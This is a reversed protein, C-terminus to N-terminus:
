LTEWGGFDLNGDTKRYIIHPILNRLLVNKVLETYKKKDLFVPSGYKLEIDSEGFANRYPTEYFTGRNGYSLYLTNSRILLFIGYISTYSCENRTHNTCEGILFKHLASQHQLSVVKGCFLCMAPDSYIVKLVDMKELELCLESLNYPLNILQIPESSNFKMNGLMTSITSESYYRSLSNRINDQKELDGMVMQLLTNFNQVKELDFQQLYFELETTIYGKYKVSTKTHEDAIPYKGLYLLYSRRLFVVMSQYLWKYIFPAIKDLPCRLLCTNKCVDSLIRRIISILLEPDFHKMQYDTDIPPHKPLSVIFEEANINCDTQILNCCLSVLNQFLKMKLIKLLWHKDDKKLKNRMELLQSVYLLLDENFHLLIGEYWNQDEFFLTTEKIMNNRTQLTYTETKLESLLRLALLCQSPINDKLFSSNFEAIDYRLYLEINSTTNILLQNVAKFIDLKETSSPNMLNQLIFICEEGSSSLGSKKDQFINQTTFHQSLFEKTSKLRYEKIKPVFSNSLSNCVPCYLLGYGFSDPVNKTTQTQALRISKLHKGLCAIHSGHGCVRVVPKEEIPGLTKRKVNVFDMVHDCIGVEEYSFYVFSTNEKRTKCFICFDDPFKWSMDDSCQIHLFHQSISTNEVSIVEELSVSKNKELFKKQQHALKRLIKEKRLRAKEKKKSFDADKLKQSTCSSWLTDKNYSEAQEMLYSDIDVHPANEKLYYFIQKIEGHVTSFEEISLFSYLLSGISHYHYFETDVVEYEHWFIKTFEHINNVVAIYTLHITRPLLIDCKFKKIYDLTHKLFMGFCDVSTISFLESYPSAQLKDVFKKTPVFTDDFGINNLKMMEHRVETEIEYRRNPTLGYYYPDLDSKYEEKLTFSGTEDSNVPKHFHTYKKLYSDFAAHKVIHEPISNVIHEYTVQKLSVSHIIEAKLTKEFSDVSSTVILYKMETLLRILLILAENVIKITTSEDPYDGMPIGKCWNRLGWRVFYTVLFDSPNINCMCLQVNFIDSVYTFERMSYKTYMKAQHSISVGNRVWFGVEIQGLLVLTSLAPELICQLLTPDQIFEKINIQNKLELPLPEYRGSTAWQLVFKFFYSMPNLLSQSNVGVQFNIIDSVHSCLKERVTLIEHEFISSRHEENVELQRVRIYGCDRLCKFEEKIAMNILKKIMNIRFNKDFVLALSRIYSDTMILISSFFFYFSSFEFNEYEVHNNVERKLPLINNFQCFASFICNLLSSNSLLEIPITNTSLLICLEKLSIITKKNQIGTTPLKFDKELSIICNNGEINSSSLNMLVFTFRLTREVFDNNIALNAYEPDQFTYQSLLAMILMHRDTSTNVSQYLLNLYIDFYQAVLYSRFEDTISFVSVLINLLQHFHILSLRELTDTLLHQFRSGQVEYTITSAGETIGEILSSNYNKMIFHYTKNNPKSFDWTKYWIKKISDKQLICKGFLNIKQLAPMGLSSHLDHIRWKDLLSLRLPCLFSSPDNQNKSMTYLWELLIEALHHKYILHMGIIFTKINCKAFKIRVDQLQSIDDSELLTVPINTTELKQVVSIAYEIPKNLIEVINASIERPHVTLNDVHIQLVWKERINKNLSFQSVNTSQFISNSNIPIMYPVLLNEENTISENGKNNQKESASLLKYVENIEIMTTIIYDLITNITPQTSLTQSNDMVNEEQNSNDETNCKNSNNSTNKCLFANQPNKFVSSNGCHCVRGEDRTVIKSLYDHDKHHQPDFCFECIEYLPNTMCTFCYYVTEIPYSLRRCMTGKHNNEINDNLFTKKWTDDYLLDSYTDINACIAEFNQIISVWDINENNKILCLNLTKWVYYDFVENYNNNCLIPLFSLFEQLSEPIKNQVNAM